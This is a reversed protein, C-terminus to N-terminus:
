QGRRVQSPLNGFLRRYRGAFRGFDSFGCHEAVNAVTMEQQSSSSLLQRAHHLRRSIMFEQLSVGCYERFVRLLSRQSVDLADALAKVSQQPQPNSDMWEKARAILALHNTRTTGASKALGLGGQLVDQALTSIYSELAHDSSSLAESQSLESMKLVDQLSSVVAKATEANPQLVRLQTRNSSSLEAEIREMRESPIYVSIWKAPGQGAFRFECGPPFAVMSGAELEQGNARGAVCSLQIYLAWGNSNLSGETLSASGEFSSQIRLKGLERQRLSWLSQYHKLLQVNVDADTITDAYAEFQTFVTPNM